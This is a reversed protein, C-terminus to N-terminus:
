KRLLLSILEHELEKSNDGNFSKIILSGLLMSVVPNIDSDEVMKEVIAALTKDGHLGFSPQAVFSQAHIFYNNPDYKNKIAQLRAVYSESFYLNQAATIGPNSGAVEGPLLDHGTNIGLARDPYNFYCGEYSTGWEPVGGSEKYIEKYASNIWEVFFTERESAQSEINDLWYTQYQLKLQSARAAIATNSHSQQKIRNSSM